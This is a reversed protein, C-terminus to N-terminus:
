NKNFLEKRLAKESDRFFYDVCVPIPRGTKASLAQVRPDSSVQQLLARPTLKGTSEKASEPYLLSAEHSDESSVPYGPRMSTFTM